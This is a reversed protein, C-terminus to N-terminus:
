SLFHNGYRQVKLQIRLFHPFFCSISRGAELTIATLKKEIQTDKDNAGKNDIYVKLFSLSDSACQYDLQLCLGIM